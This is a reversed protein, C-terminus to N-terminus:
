KIIPMYFLHQVREQIKYVYFENRQWATSPKMYKAERPICNAQRSHCLKVLKNAIDKSLQKFTEYQQDKDHRSCGEQGYYHDSLFQESCM